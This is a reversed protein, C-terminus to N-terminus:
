PGEQVTLVAGFGEGILSPALTVAPARRARRGATAPEREMGQKVILAVGATTAVAGVVFFATGWRAYRKGSEELEVLAEFDAPTNTPAADVQSQKDAAAALLLGGILTIGAGGGAVAWTYGRVRSASFRAEASPEISPAIVAPALPEPEPVPEADPDRWFAAARTRFGAALAPSAALQFTRSRVPRRVAVLRLRVSVQDPGAPEVEGTVLSGVELIALAQQLCQDSAEGCGALALVDDLGAQTVESGSERIVEALAGSMQEPAAALDGPLEGSLNVVIVRKARPEALAPNAWAALVLAAIAVVPVHASM